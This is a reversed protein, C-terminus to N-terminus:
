RAQAQELTAMAMLDAAAQLRRVEARLREVEAILAPIDTRAAAIFAADPKTNSYFDREGNMTAIHSHSGFVYYTPAVQSEKLEWPGPTAAECRAKIALDLM